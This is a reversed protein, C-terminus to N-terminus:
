KDFLRDIESVVWYLEDETFYKGSRHLECVEMATEYCCCTNFGYCFFWAFPFWWPKFQAKFFTTEDVKHEKIRYQTKM